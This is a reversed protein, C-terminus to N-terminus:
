TKARDRPAVMGRAYDCSKLGPGETVRERSAAPAEQWARALGGCWASAGCRWGACGSVVPGDHGSAAGDEGGGDDARGEGGEEEASAGGPLAARACARVGGNLAAVEHM